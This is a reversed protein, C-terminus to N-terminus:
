NSSSGNRFFYVIVIWRTALHFLIPQSCFSTLLMLKLLLFFVLFRVSHRHFFRLRALSFIPFYLGNFLYHVAYYDLSLLSVTFLELPLLLQAWIPNLMSHLMWLSSVHISLSFIYSQTSDTSLPPWCIFKFHTIRISKNNM